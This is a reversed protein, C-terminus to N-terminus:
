YQCHTNHINEDFSKLFDTFGNEGWVRVGERLHRLRIKNM